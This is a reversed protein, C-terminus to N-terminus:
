FDCTHSQIQNNKIEYPNFYTMGNKGGFLIKDSRSKYYSFQNHENGQIGDQKNYTRFDLQDNDKKIINVIGKNCSIWCLTDVCVMGYIVDNPLGDKKHWSTFNQTSDLYNLGGSTSVWVGKNEPYIDMVFNNSLSNNRNENHQYSRFNDTSYNYICLGGNATAFAIEDNNMEKIDFVYPHSLTLSDGAQYNFHIFDKTTADWRIVGNGSTGIWINNRSDKMMDCVSHNQTLTDLKPPVDLIEINDNLTLAFRALGLRRYGLWLEGDILMVNLMYNNRLAPTNSKNYCFYEWESRAQNFNKIRSLGKRTAVWLNGQDDETMGLVPAECLHEDEIVHFRNAVASFEFFGTKGGIWFLDKEIECIHYLIRDTLGTQKENKEGYHYVEGTSIDLTFFGQVSIIGILNESIETLGSILVGDM